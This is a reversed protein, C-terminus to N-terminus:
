TASFTPIIPISVYGFIHIIVFYSVNSTQCLKQSHWWQNSWKIREDHEAWFFLNNGSYPDCLYPGLLFIHDIFLGPLWAFLLTILNPSFYPGQCLYTTGLFLTFFLPVIFFFLNIGLIPIWFTSDKFSFFTTGLIPSVFTLDKFTIIPNWYIYIWPNLISLLYTQIFSIAM